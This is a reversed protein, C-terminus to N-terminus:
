SRQRGDRATYTRKERDGRAARALGNSPPVSEEMLDAFALISTLPTRLEHSVIALFDSKFQNGKKLRDNVHEVHSRQRELGENAASLQM